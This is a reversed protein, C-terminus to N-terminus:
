LRAIQADLDALARELMSRHNPNHASELQQLVRQRSLLLGQKQRQESKQEATLAPKLTNPSQAEESQQLEVSKSEWGRAMFRNYDSITPHLTGFCEARM